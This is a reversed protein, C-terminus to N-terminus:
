PPPTVTFDFVNESILENGESFVKARLQYSGPPGATWTAPGLSEVSDAAMSVPWGGQQFNEGAANSISWEVRANPLAEWRDNIAWIGCRFDSGAAWRDRDYEV